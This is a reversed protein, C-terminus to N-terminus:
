GSVSAPCPGPRQVPYSVQGRAGCQYSCWVLEGENRIMALTCAQPQQPHYTPAQYGSGDMSSLIRGVERMQEASVNACGGLLFAVGVIAVAKM